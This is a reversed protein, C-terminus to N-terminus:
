LNAWTPVSDFWKEEEITTWVNKNGKWRANESLKKKKAKERHPSKEREIKNEEM